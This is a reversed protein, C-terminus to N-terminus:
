NQNQEIRTRRAIIKASGIILGAGALSLGLFHYFVIETEYSQLDYLVYKIWLILAIHAVFILTNEIRKPWPNM